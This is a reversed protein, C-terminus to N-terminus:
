HRFWRMSMSRGPPPSPQGGRTATPMPMTTRPSAPICSSSTPVSWACLRWAPPSSAELRAAVEAAPPSGLDCKSTVECPRSRGQFTEGIIQECNLYMPATDILDIGGDVAARLTAAAEGRSTEGWVQGM